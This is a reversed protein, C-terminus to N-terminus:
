ACHVSRISDAGGTCKRPKPASRLLWTAPSTEGGCLTCSDGTHSQGCSQSTPSPGSVAWPIGALRHFIGAVLLELPQSTSAPKAKWLASADGGAHAPDWVLLVPVDCPCSQRVVLGSLDGVRSQPCDACEPCHNPYAHIRGCDLLPQSGPAGSSSGSSSHSTSPSSPESSSVSSAVHSAAEASGALFRATVKSPSARCASVLSSIVAKLLGTGGGAASGLGSVTSALSGAGALLGLLFGRGASLVNAEISSCAPKAKNREGVLAVRVLSGHQPAVLEGGLDDLQHRFDSLFFAEQTKSLNPPPGLPGLIAVVVQHVVQRLRLPCRAKHSAPFGSGRAFLYCKMEQMAKKFPGPNKLINGYGKKKSSPTFLFCAVLLQCSSSIRWSPRPLPEPPLLRCVQPLAKSNKGAWRAGPQHRRRCGSRGSRPMCAAGAQRSVESCTLPAM